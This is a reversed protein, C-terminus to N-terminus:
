NCNPINEGTKTYQTLFFRAIRCGFWYANKVSFYRYIHPDMAKAVKYPFPILNEQLAQLPFSTSKQFPDRFFNGSYAYTGPNGSKEHFLVGLHSFIYWLVVSLGFPQFINLIALFYVLMKWKLARWFKGVNPNQTQFHVMQCGEDNQTILDFGAM